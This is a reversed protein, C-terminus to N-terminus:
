VNGALALATHTKMDDIAFSVVKPAEYKTKSVLSLVKKAVVPLTASAPNTGIAPTATAMEDGIDTELPTGPLM